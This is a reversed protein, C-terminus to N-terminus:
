EDTESSATSSSRSPAPRPLSWAMERMSWWSSYLEVPSAGGSPGASCTELVGPGPSWLDLEPTPSIRWLAGRDTKSWLIILIISVMLWLCSKDTRTPLELLAEVGSGGIVLM